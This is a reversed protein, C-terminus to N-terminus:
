QEEDEEYKKISELVATVDNDIQADAFMGMPSKATSHNARTEFIYKGDQGKAYLVISFKSEPVIKRLKRGSTAMRANGEEDKEVHATCIVTLDDRLDHVDSILRYISVALDAWKDYNKEHMRAMEDDIMIGNLTDIVATKIHTMDGDNIRQLVTWIASANSTAIYNKAEKNYQKRWGRWALGKKDCDFILTTAPNLKRLSTTKGAGSEGMILISQAM